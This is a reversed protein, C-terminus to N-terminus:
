PKSQWQQEEPLVQTANWCPVSRQLCTDDEVAIECSSINQSMTALAEGAMSICRDQPRQVGTKHCMTLGSCLYPCSLPLASRTHTGDGDGNGDGDGDGHGDVNGNSNGTMVLVVIRIIM